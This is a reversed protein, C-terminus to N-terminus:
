KKPSDARRYKEFFGNKQIERNKRKRLKQRQDAIGLGGARRNQLSARGPQDAVREKEGFGRM